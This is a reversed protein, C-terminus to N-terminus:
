KKNESPIQGTYGSNINSLPNSFVGSSYTNTGIGNTTVGNTFSFSLNSPLLKNELWRIYEDKDDVLKQAEFELRLKSKM